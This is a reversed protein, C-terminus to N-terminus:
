VQKSLQQYINKIIRFERPVRNPNEYEAFTAENYKIEESFFAISDKLYDKVNFSLPLSLKLDPITPRFSKSKISVEGGLFDTPIALPFIYVIFSGNNMSRVPKFLIPSKMREIPHGAASKATKIITDDYKSWEQETALGLLDRFTNQDRDEGDPKYMVTGDPKKRTILIEEYVPHAAFGSHGSYFYTRITKKDWQMNLNKAYHFMLSKFYFKRPYNIGSRLTRYFLDIHEFVVKQQSIWILKDGSYGHNNFEDCYKDEVQPFNDIKFCLKNKLELTVKTNNFTFLTFSGYGKSQRSGFNNTQFFIFFLEVKALLLNYLKINKCFIRCNILDETFSFCKPALRNEPGMNAFFGPFQQEWYIGKNKSEQVFGVESININLARIELKYDLSRFGEQNFRNKLEDEKLKSPSYATLVQKCLEFENNFCNEIIFKDLKPKVESARLSAEPQNRQFHIIPTHQKLTFDIVFAM